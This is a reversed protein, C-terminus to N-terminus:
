TRSAASSTSPAKSPRTPSVTGCTQHAFSAARGVDQAIDRAHTHKTRVATEGQQERRQGERGGTWAAHRAGGFRQVLGDSVHGISVRRSARPREGTEVRQEDGGVGLLRTNLEVGCHPLVGAVWPRQHALQHQGISLRAGIARHADREVEDFALGPVRERRQSCTVQEIADRERRLSVFGHHRARRRKQLLPQESVGGMQQARRDDGDCFGPLVIRADLRHQLVHTHRGGHRQQARQARPM